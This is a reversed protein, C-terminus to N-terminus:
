LAVYPWGANKGHKWKEAGSYSDAWNTGCAKDLFTLQWVDDSVARWGSGFRGDQLASAARCIARDGASWIPLGARELVRGAVVFGQLGEWPYGTHEPTTSCSGGRRMDDPIIGDVNVQGGCSITCGKPNIWYPNGQDCQWSLSGYKAVTKQGTVSAIYYDRVDKLKATDGLYAYIATLSSFAQSGWNNPRMKYMDLLNKHTQSGIYTEAMDRMKKEFAPTHYGVLDASMAYAGTERAWALTRGTPVFKEVKMLANVVKSKYKADGTRAYVIAAALVDTNTTDNQDDLDPSPSDALSDAAKKVENWADGSMPLRSLEEPSTWIGKVPASTVPPAPPLTPTPSPVTPEEAPPTPSPQAPESPTPTPEAVPSPTPEEPAPIEVSDLGNISFAISAWDTSSNLTGKFAIPESNASYRTVLALGAQDGARKGYRTDLIETFGSGAKHTRLRTAVAGFVLSNDTSIISASYEKTDKGGSCEGNLGNTNFGYVHSIPDTLDVGSFTSVAIISNKVDNDLSATVTGDASPRGKAVWVDVGTAERGACQSRLQEWEMGMGTVSNVEVYPKTTITAVYLNTASATVTGSTVKESSSSTGKVTKIHTPKAAIGAWTLRFTPRQIMLVTAVLGIAMLALYILHKKYVRFFRTLRLNTSIRKSRRKAM